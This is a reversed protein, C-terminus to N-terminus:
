RGLKNKKVVRVTFSSMSQNGHVDTATVDVTTYGLPFFSGSPPSATAAVSGDVADTAAVAFSIITGAKGNRKVGKQKAVTMDAPVTIVPPTTDAVVVNFNGSVTRGAADTATCTVPTTGLPFVTGSSPTSNVQVAQGAFDTALPASFIVTTGSANSAEAVIDAPINALVPPCEFLEATNIPQQNTYGGTLLVRGNPLLTASHLRRAATMVDPSLLTFTRLSPDFLEATNLPTLNDVDGGAIVVQGNLLLTASHTERPSTMANALATFTLATPDFIEASAVAATGNWGGALLVKGDPLLTATHGYRASNMPSAVPLFSETAPDFIDATNTASNGAAGPGTYGGALLVSGDSMHTAIHASRPVSLSSAVPSFSEDAPDFLEATNSVGSLTQGGCILVKGTSLLTASHGYRPSVMTAAVPTSSLTAPDFIEANVIGGGDTGGALLVRGDAMATASGYLRDSVAGAPLVTFTNTVPDFLEAPLQFSGGTVLVKGNPLLTESHVWRAANMPGVAFFPSDAPPSAHLLGFPVALIWLWAALPVPLRRFIKRRLLNSSSTFRAFRVLPETGQLTKFRVLSIKV